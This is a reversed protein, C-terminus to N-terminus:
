VGFLLVVGVVVHRPCVVFVFHRSLITDGLNAFCARGAWCACHNSVGNVKAGAAYRGVILDVLVRVVLKARVDSARASDIYM